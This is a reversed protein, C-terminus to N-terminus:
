EDIIEAIEDGCLIIDNEQAIKKFIGTLPAMITNTLKETEIDLMPEGEIIKEGDNCYWKMIKGDQMTMGIRPMIVIM